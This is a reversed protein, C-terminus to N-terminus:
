YCLEEDVSTSYIHGVNITYCRGNEYFKYDNDEKLRDVRKDTQCISKACFPPLDTQLQTTLLYLERIKSLYEKDSAKFKPNLKKLTRYIRVISTAYNKSSQDQALDWNLMEFSLYLYQFQASADGILRGNMLHKQAMLLGNKAFSEQSKTQEKKASKQYNLDSQYFSIAMQAGTKLVQIRVLDSQNRLAILRSRKIKQKRKTVLSKQSEIQITKSLLLARNLAFRMFSQFTRHGSSDKVEKMERTLFALREQSPMSQIDQLIEQLRRKSNSAWPKFEAITKDDLKVLTGESYGGAFSPLSLLLTTLTLALSTKKMLTKM